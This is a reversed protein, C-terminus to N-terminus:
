VKEKRVLITSSVNKVSPVSTVPPTKVDHLIRMVLGVSQLEKYNNRITKGSCSRTLLRNPQARPANVSTVLSPFIPRKSSAHLPAM